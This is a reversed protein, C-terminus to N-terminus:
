KKGGGKNNKLKVNNKNIKHKNKRFKDWHKKPIKCVFKGDETEEGVDLLVSEKSNYRGKRDKLIEGDKYLEYLYRGNAEAVERKNQFIVYNEL